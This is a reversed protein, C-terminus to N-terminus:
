RFVFAINWPFARLGVAENSLAWLELKKSAACKSLSIYSPILHGSCRPQSRAASVTSRRHRALSTALAVLPASRAASLPLLLRAATARTSPPALATASPWPWAVLWKGRMEEEEEEEEGFQSM